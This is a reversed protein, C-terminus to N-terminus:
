ERKEGDNALAFYDSLLSDAKKRAWLETRRTACLSDFDCFRCNEPGDFGDPGPNAPFVGGQIGSVITSLAAQFRERVADDQLDLNEPPHFTFRGHTTTFWYAAKIENADAVFRRAALSYVGLQLRKGGDIPDNKLGEYQRAGGTKYDIVLVSRSSPDVDIRDIYGRFRVGTQPEKVEPAGGYGFGAEVLIYRTGCRARLKSDEEIFTELDARVDQKELNWILPKGTVGRSEALTFEEGAIRFLRQRLQDSWETGPAPLANEENVERIFRELIRHILSGRELPTISTSEEPAELASLRLVHGLFYSFPCRAWSELRTASVPARRLRRLFDAEQAVSSLNGDFETLRSQNRRLRLRAALALTGDGAFPHDMLTFGRRRWRLLRHLNYDHRDAPSADRLTVLAHEGSEDTSFWERDLLRPLGSAQVQSGELFSAYELFWRSPYAERQSAPDAVPYSLERHPSTAAAALYDYREDAVRQTLRSDGGAAQWESEPLLPDPRFPPPMGGEIMGVIWVRDFRMGAAGGVPSVFVGMGTTGLHGTTSRLSDDITQKFEDLTTGAHISDAAELEEIARRIKDRVTAEAAPVDRDLYRDLLDNAWRCFARWPSGNEPPEVDAALKEAFTVVDRAARAESKMREARAETIEEGAALRAAADTLREAYLNLRDRWQELGRVIGARRTLADWRGPNFGAAWAGAPRVPCGTLWALVEERQLDGGSMALLGILARGSASDALTSRDPGAIPIGAMRLEDPILSAYPNDMRYLVAMRHFSIRGRDAERVIRRIVWRLEQHANPAVHLRAKGPLLPMVDDDQSAPVPEGLLPVLARLLAYVSRNADADGTTGLLVDCRRQRALARILKTEGTSVNGPLYFMVCGLDDLGPAEGRNVADAATEALDEPGYWECNTNRRFECYLRLIEARLNGQEALAALVDGSLRRLERFSARISTQTAPHDRVRALPEGTGALLERILVSELVGSLPKRGEGALTAGGLLESLVPMVVFRVNAFGNRGFDQRLSLNVYRSPGVVTVPALADDGKAERILRWLTERFLPSQRAVILRGRNRPATNKSGTQM